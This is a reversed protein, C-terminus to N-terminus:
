LGLLSLEDRADRNWSLEDTDPDLWRPTTEGRM